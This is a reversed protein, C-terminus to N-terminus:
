IEVGTIEATFKILGNTSRGDSLEGTYYKIFIFDLLIDLAKSIEIKNFRDEFVKVLTSFNIPKKKAQFEFIKLAVPFCVDTQERTEKPFTNYKELFEWRRGLWAIKGVIAIDYKAWSGRSFESQDIGQTEWEEQVPLFIKKLLEIGNKIEQEEIQNNKKNERM